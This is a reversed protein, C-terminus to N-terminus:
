HKPPPPPPCGKRQDMLKRQFGREASRLKFLQRRTLVKRFAKEYRAEITALDSNLQYQAAIATDFDSDTAADGKKKVQKEITYAKTEAAHREAEKADYLKFFESQQEETLDLEKVLYKHKFEKLKQFWEAREDAKSHKKAKPKNDALAAMPTMLLAILLIKLYKIM